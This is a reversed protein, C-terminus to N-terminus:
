KRGSGPDGAYGPAKWDMRADKGREPALADPEGQSLKYGRCRRVRLAIVNVSTILQM